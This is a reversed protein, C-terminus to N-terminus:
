APSGSGPDRGSRRPDALGAAAAAKAAGLAVLRELLARWGVTVPDEVGDFLQVLREYDELTDLTCRLHGAAPLRGLTLDLGGSAHRARLTPTVHERDYPDDVESSLARLTGLRFAEAGLGLPLLRASSTSGLYAGGCRRFEAVLAAIFDGDPVVNDATVRVITAEDDLDESALLYRQRVDDTPGRAVDIDYAEFTRALADDTDRDTTAVVVEAGRNGARLAALVASPVRSVPVFAKAFFRSSDTRAQVVM